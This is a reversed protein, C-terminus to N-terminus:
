SGLTGPKILDYPCGYETKSLRGNNKNQLTAVYGVGLKGLKKVVEV